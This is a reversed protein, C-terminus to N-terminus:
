FNMICIQISYDLHTQYGMSKGTQAESLISFMIFYVGSQDLFTLCLISRILQFFPNVQLSESEQKDMVELILAALMNFGQCYGISKNWRAYALLVRKLMLQNAEADEGCFLSCGTRHLDQLFTVLGAKFLNPFTKCTFNILLPLPTTQHDASFISLGLTSPDFGPREKKRKYNM